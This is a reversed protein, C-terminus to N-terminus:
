IIRCEAVAKGTAPSTDGTAEADGKNVNAADFTDTGTLGSDLDFNASVDIGADGYTIKIRECRNNYYNVWDDYTNVSAPQNTAARLSDNMLTDAAIIAGTERASSGSIQESTEGVVNTVLVVALAALGAVAAVILLWELTTLGSEDRRPLRRRILRDSKRSNDTHNLSTM